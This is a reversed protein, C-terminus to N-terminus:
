WPSNAKETINSHARLVDFPLNTDIQGREYAMEDARGNALIRWDLPYSGITNQAHYRIM